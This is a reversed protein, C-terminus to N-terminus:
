YWHLGIQKFFVPTVVVLTASERQEAAGISWHAHLHKWSACHVHSPADTTQLAFSPAPSSFVTPSLTQSVRPAGFGADVASSRTADEQSGFVSIRPEDGVACHRV